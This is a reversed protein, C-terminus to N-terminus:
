EWFNMEEENTVCVYDWSTVARLGYGPVFNYSIDPIEECIMDGTDWSALIEEPGCYEDDWFIKTCGDVGAMGIGSCRFFGGGVETENNICDLTNIILSGNCVNCTAPHEESPLPFDSDVEMGYCLYFLGENTEQLFVCSNVDLTVNGICVLGEIGNETDFQTYFQSCNTARLTAYGQCTICDIVDVYINSGAQNPGEMQSLAGPPLKSNETFNFKSLYDSIQSSYLISSKPKLKPPTDQTIILTLLLSLILFNIHLSQFNM